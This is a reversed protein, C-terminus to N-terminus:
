DRPQVASMSTFGFFSCTGSQQGWLGTYVEVWSFEWERDHPSTPERAFPIVLLNTTASLAATKARTFSALRTILEEYHALCWQMCYFCAAFAVVDDPKVVKDLVTIVKSWDLHCAHHAPWSYNFVDFGADTASPTLCPVLAFSHSDGILWIAGQFVM